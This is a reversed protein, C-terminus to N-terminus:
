ERRDIDEESILDRGGTPIEDEVRQISLLQQGKYTVLSQEIRTELEKELEDDTMLAVPAKTAGSEAVKTTLKTVMELIQTRIRGGAPASHYQAMLTSAFGDAGGLLRMISELMESTHPIESGGTGAKKLFNECANRELSELKKKQMLSRYCPKCVPSFEKTGPIKPFNKATLEKPMECASCTRWNLPAISEETVKNDQEVIEKDDM